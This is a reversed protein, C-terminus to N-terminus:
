ALKSLKKLRAGQTSKNKIGASAMRVSESSNLVPVKSVKFVLGNVAVSIVSPFYILRRKTKTNTIMGVKIYITLMLLNLAAPPM